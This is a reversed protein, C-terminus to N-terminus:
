AFNFVNKIFYSLYILLNLMNGCFFLILNLASVFINLFDRFFNFITWDDTIPKITNLLLDSQIIPATHLTELLTTTGKYSFNPDVLVGILSSILLILALCKFLLPLYIHDKM